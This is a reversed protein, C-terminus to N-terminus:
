QPQSVKALPITAQTNQARRILQEVQQAMGELDGAMAASHLAQTDTIRNQNQTKKIIPM